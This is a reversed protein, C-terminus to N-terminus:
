LDVDLGCFPTSPDCPVADSAAGTNTGTTVYDMPNPLPRGEIKKSDSTIIPRGTARDFDTFYYGSLARQHGIWEDDDWTGVGYFADLWEDTVYPYPGEDVVVDDGGDVNWDPDFGIGDTIDEWDEGGDVDWDPDFGIGDTIDGWEDSGYYDDIYEGGDIEGGDDLDWDDMLDDDGGEDGFDDGVSITKHYGETGGDDGGDVDSIDDSGSDNDPEPDKTGEPNDPDIGFDRMMQRLEKNLQQNDKLVKRTKIQAIQMDLNLNESPRAMQGFYKGEFGSDAGWAGKAMIASDVVGVAINVPIIVNKVAQMAAQKSVETKLYLEVGRGAMESLTTKAVDHSIGKKVKMSGNSYARGLFTASNTLKDAIRRKIRRDDLDTDTSVHQKNLLQATAEMDKIAGGVIEKEYQVNMVNVGSNIISYLTFITAIAAGIAM